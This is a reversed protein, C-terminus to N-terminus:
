QSGCHLHFAKSVNNASKKAIDIDGENRIKMKRIKLCAGWYQSECKWINMAESSFGNVQFRLLTCGKTLLLTLVIKLNGSNM